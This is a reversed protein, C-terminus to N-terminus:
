YNDIQTQAPQAACPDANEATLGGTRSVQKFTLAAGYLILRILELKEEDSLLNWM